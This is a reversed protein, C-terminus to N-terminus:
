NPIALGEVCRSIWKMAFLHGGNRDGFIVLIVNWTCRITFNNVWVFLAALLIFEERMRALCFYVVERKSWAAHFKHGAWLVVRRLDKVECCGFFFKWKSLVLVIHLWTFPVWRHREDNGTTFVLCYLNPIWSRATLPPALNWSWMVHDATHAPVRNIAVPEERTAFIAVDFNVVKPLQLLDINISALFIRNLNHCPVRVFFLKECAARLLACYREPCSLYAALFTEQM